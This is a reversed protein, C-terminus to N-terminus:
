TIQCAVLDRLRLLIKLAPFGVIAGRFQESGLRQEQLPPFREQSAARQQEVLVVLLGGTKQFVRHTDVRAARVCIALARSRITCTLRMCSPLRRTVLM